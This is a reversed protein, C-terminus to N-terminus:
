ACTALMEELGEVEATDATLTWKLKVEIWATAYACWTSQERPKWVAPDRDAKSRNSSATVALLARQEDLDNAYAERQEETWSSATSEWAEKLPVMHDIDLERSNTVLVNDYLSLWEGETVPCGRESSSVTEVRSEAILVEQRTDCGDGDADIWDRSTTSFANRDYGTGDAEPAVVLMSLRELGESAEGEAETTPDAPTIGGPEDEVAAFGFSSALLLAAMILGVVGDRPEARRGVDTPGPEPLLPGESSVSKNETAM